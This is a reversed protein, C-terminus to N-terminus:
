ILEFPTDFYSKTVKEVTDFTVEFTFHDSRVSTFSTSMSTVIFKTRRCLILILCLVYPCFLILYM